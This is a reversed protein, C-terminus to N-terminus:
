LNTDIVSKIVFYFFYPRENEPIGAKDYEALDNDWEHADFERQLYEIDSKVLAFADNFEIEVDLFWSNNYDHFHIKKAQKIDNCFACVEDSEINAQIYNSVNKDILRSIYFPSFARYELKKTGAIIQKAFEKKMVLSLCDIEKAKPAEPHNAFFKDRAAFFEEDNNFQLNMTM